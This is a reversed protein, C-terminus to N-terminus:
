IYYRLCPQLLHQNIQIERQPVTAGFNVSGDYVLVKDFNIKLRHQRRKVKELLEDFLSTKHYTLLTNESGIFAM